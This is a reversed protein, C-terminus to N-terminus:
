EKKGKIAAVCAVGIVCFGIVVAFVWNYSSTWDYIAGIVTLAVAAGVNTVMAIIAFAEGYQERFLVRSFTPLGVAAVGYSSGFLFAGALLLITVRGFLILFLGALTVGLFLLITRKAGLFDSVVGLLLKFSINGVMAASLMMVGVATGVGINESFGSFHQALSTAFSLLTGMITILWFTSTQYFKKQVPHIEATQLQDATASAQGAPESATPAAVPEADPKTGAQSDYADKSGYPRLGIENPTKCCFIFGPLSLIVVLLAVLLLANQYGAAEIVSSVIPSIIAGAIGTFSFAIGVVTGYSKEFWNGLIISLLPTGIIACGFGRLVGIVNLQWVAGAYATLVTSGALLLIGALIMWRFKVKKMIKVALPASCGTVLGSITAHMAVAGRGVGLAECLSTYFVGYVNNFLGVCTAALLCCSVLILWHYQKKLFSM